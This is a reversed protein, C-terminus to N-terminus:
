RTSLYAEQLMRAYADAVEDGTPLIKAVEAANDALQTRLQPDEALRSIASALQAPKDPEFYLGNVGDFVQEPIGYVPTTIIPLDMHMAEINVRPFCEIRSCCVFADAARFYPGVDDLEPIMSFRSRLEAPWSRILDSVRQSYPNPVDGVLFCRTRRQLPPPLLEFARPLDLQGKRECLTGVNLLVLEDPRVGITERAADRAMQERWGQARSADIANYLHVFNHRRQLPAFIDMTAKSGFVVRYPQSLTTFLEGALYNGMTAPYHSLPDSEHINWIAGVGARAAAAAVFFMLVTNAYVADIDNHKLMSTFHDLVEAYKMRGLFMEDYVRPGIIIQAGQRRYRQTLPGDEMSFLVPEIGHRRQLQMALELQIQPAGTLTMTHAAYLVRRLSREGRPLRRPQIQFQEDRLSLHPSFYPDEFGAYRRRFAAVERPDDKFGRSAGEHHCLVAQACYVNRYGRRLLRYGFDVDNYAVAFNAEDLGGMELYLKRSVLLCAATCASVNRTSLSLNFYGPDSQSLLKFAHGALGDHLGHLVGAHQVRGDPYILRAGVSGVGPMQALGVMRSLWKPEIVETDNNLLVVYDSDCTEVARNNIWAFNFRDGPCKLSLARANLSDIYAKALPDDSQNDAIVLQWNRYTTRKLSEVCRRLMDLRNKTPIIISVSPGEDPFDAAYIGLQCATAWDPRYASGRIGRRDLADQVAKRGADFSAPKEAGNLATSGRIARWHYLVMPLHVVKRAQEVARLAFDHDQAGEYGARMGGLRSYLSRRVVLLHTFYMFSLLLEPSYECKFQPMYRHGYEDIKDDDSYLLDIEADAALALAVEGLADRTLEDDHDLFALFEGTALEAASNTARSIHGNVPRYTVRIRPERAQWEALTKRVYGASSCDDAICLEWDEYVQECVSQITRNLWRQPPDFVPMVVSIRPLPTQAARLRRLLEDRRWSTWRNVALWTEYPTLTHNPRPLFSGNRIAPVLYHRLAFRSMEPLARITGGLGQMRVRARLAGPGDRLLRGFAQASLGLRGM